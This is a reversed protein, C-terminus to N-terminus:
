KLYETELLFSKITGQLNSETMKRFKWRKSGLLYICYATNVNSNEIVTLESNTESLGGTSLANRFQTLQDRRLTGTILVSQEVARKLQTLSSTFQQSQNFSALMVETKLGPRIEVSTQMLRCEETIPVLEMKPVTRRFLLVSGVFHENTVSTPVFIPFREAAVAIKAGPHIRPDAFRVNAKDLIQLHSGDMKLAASTEGYTSVTFPNNGSLDSYLTIGVTRSKDWVTSPDSEEDTPSPGDNACSIMLLYLLSLIFINANSKM